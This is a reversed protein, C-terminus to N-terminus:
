CSDDCPAYCCTECVEPSYACIETSVGYMDIPEGCDPCEGDVPLGSGIPECCMNLSGSILCCLCTNGNSLGFGGMPCGFAHHNMIM